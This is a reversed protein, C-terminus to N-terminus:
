SGVFFVLVKPGVGCKYTYLRDKHFLRLEKLRCSFYWTYASFAHKGSESIADWFPSDFEYQAKMIKTFLRTESEEYFPPYGCLRCHCCMNIITM